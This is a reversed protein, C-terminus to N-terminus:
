AAVPGPARHEPLKATSVEAPVRSAGTKRSLWTKGSDGPGELGAQAETSTGQGRSGAESCMLVVSVERGLSVSDELFLGLICDPPREQSELAHLLCVSSSVLRGLGCLCLPARAPLTSNRRDVLSKGKSNAKSALAGDRM